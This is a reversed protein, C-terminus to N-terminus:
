PKLACAKNNHMYNCSYEDVTGASIERVEEGEEDMTAPSVTVRVQETM